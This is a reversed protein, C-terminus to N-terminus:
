AQEEMTALHRALAVSDGDGANEAEAHPIGGIHNSPARMARARVDTTVSQDATSCAFADLEGDDWGDDRTM